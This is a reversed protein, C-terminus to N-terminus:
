FAYDALNKARAMGLVFRYVIDVRAGFHSGSAARVWARPPFISLAFIQISASYDELLELGGECRHSSLSGSPRFDRMNNSESAVWRDVVTEGFSNSAKLHFITWFTSCLSWDAVGKFCDCGCPNHDGVSAVLFLM